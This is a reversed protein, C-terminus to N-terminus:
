QLWYRVLAQHIRMHWLRSSTGGSKTFGALTNIAGTLACKLGESGQRDAQHPTVSGLYPTRLLSRILLRRESKAM